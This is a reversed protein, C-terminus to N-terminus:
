WRRLGPMDDHMTATCAYTGATGWILTYASTIYATSCVYLTSRPLVCSCFAMLSLIEARFYTATKM